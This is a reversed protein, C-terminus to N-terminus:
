LNEWHGVERFTCHIFGRDTKELFVAGRPGTLLSDHLYIYVTEPQSLTDQEIISVNQAHQALPLPSRNM